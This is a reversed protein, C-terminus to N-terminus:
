LRLIRIAAKDPALEIAKEFSAQAEGFRSIKMYVQGRAFYAVADHPSLQILETYFAAADELLRRRVEKMEPIAGVQEDAVRALMQHVANRAAEYNKQAKAANQEARTANEDAKAANEEAAVANESARRREQKERGYAGAIVVGALVSALLVVFLAVVAAWVVPRHRRAWKAARDALTPPRAQVPEDALYREVDAAFASASEYRRTRDKQLAKMVIWDLDGHLLRGLRRADIGRHATITSVAEASLTCLRRSPWPPEEERIIRRLEDFGAERFRGQDFPTSGTLLEYLLVGLSYIDSRTDVDLESLEAQEPSMYMPTGMMRGHGTFLTKETLSQHIAKVIGFDIIKPVPVGDYLTVMVNSPKLDRHIIGKQHAHQVDQCVLVFLSLRQHTTLGARDCYETFRLKVLELARPDKTALKDLVENLALLDLQPGGVEPDVTSLEARRHQGGARLSGKRRAREVLIRRIAEAAAAFFHGRSNWHQAKEVDVLRIYAEHVLATAQLTQGPKEQAMKEAALRRLEDYVLPLLQEAAQPDGQEIASLIRTVEHM